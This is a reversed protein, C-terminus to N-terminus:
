KAQEVALVEVSAVAVFANARRWRAASKEALDSRGAWETRSVAPRARFGNAAPRAAFHVVVCHTYTRDSTRTHIRGHVDCVQYKTM